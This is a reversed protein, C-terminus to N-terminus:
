EDVDPIILKDLVNIEEYDNYEKIFDISVNYKNAISEITDGERVIHIHYNIYTEDEEVKDIIVDEKVRDEVKPEISRVAEVNDIKTDNDDISNLILDDFDIESVGDPIKINPSTEDYRIGFDIYVTLVDDLVNYEFNDIDYSLSSLDVNEDLEYELPLKYNFKEKNISLENIKYEGSVIFDGRLYGADVTFDHELSISTIEGINTKFIIDKEYNITKKM